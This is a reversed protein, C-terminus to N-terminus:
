FWLDKTVMGLHQYFTLTEQIKSKVEVHAFGLKM